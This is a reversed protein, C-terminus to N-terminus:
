RKVTYQYFISITATGNAAVKFAQDHGFSLKLDDLAVGGPGSFYIPPIRTTSGEKITVDGNASSSILISLLEFHRDTISDLITLASTAPLFETQGDLVANLAHLRSLDAM